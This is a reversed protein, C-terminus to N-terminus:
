ACYFIVEQDRPLTTAMAEFRALPISGELRGKRCKADDEYACVLLARGSTVDKRANGVDIREVTPAM